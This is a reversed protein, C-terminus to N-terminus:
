KQKIILLGADKKEAMPIYQIVKYGNDAAHKAAFDPNRSFMIITGEKKLIQPVKKFFDRYIVFIENSSKNDTEFPMDTFIEDFLYEHTFQFFNRNIYHIIQGAAETNVKAKEIAESNIDIGYSTNAKVVKQREILMTGVGCFPDLVQADDAMFPRALAVMLAANVPKISAPIYQKYYDFRNDRITFMKLLANLKGEKNEILRIEFEYNSTSNVLKRGTLHELEAALKKAFQSKKDLPLQSKLEVRFYYPHSANHSEEILRVLKSEALARATEVPTMNCTKFGPIAFLIESYTRINYLERIDDSKVRVGGKFPIIEGESIQEETVNKHLRNTILIYEVARPFGCFVHKKIGEKSVILESLAKLEESIHKKNEETLKVEQLKDIREKFFNMYRSVDYHKLAILYSSRVFLQEENCYAEFLPKVFDALGLEGMLLAANKRTKADDNKLFSCMCDFNDKALEVALEMNDANRIELRLESLNQRVDIGKKAAEFIDTLM